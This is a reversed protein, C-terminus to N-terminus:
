TKEPLVVEESIRITELAGDASNFATDSRKSVQPISKSSNHRSTKHRSEDDVFVKEGPQRHGYLVAPDPPIIIKEDPLKKEEKAEPGVEGAEIQKNLKKRKHRKMFYITFGIIWALGLVGGCVSGAIIPTKAKQRFM